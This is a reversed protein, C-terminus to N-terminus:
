TGPEQSCTTQPAERSTTLQSRLCPWTVSVCCSVMEEPPFWLAAGKAMLRESAEGQEVVVRGKM